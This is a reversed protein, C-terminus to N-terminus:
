PALSVTATKLTGNSFKVRIKLNNGSEDLYFVISGYGMDADTPAIKDAGLNVSNGEGTQLQFLPAVNNPKGIGVFSNHDVWLANKNITTGNAVTSVVFRTGNAGVSWNESADFEFNAGTIPYQTGDYGIGYINGLSDGFEVATPAGQAGRSRLWNITPGRFGATAHSYMDIGVAHTAHIELPNLGAGEQIRVTPAGNYENTTTAAPGVEMTGLELNGSLDGNSRNGIALSGPGLRSIGVDAYPIVQGNRLSGSLASWATRECSGGNRATGLTANITVVVGIGGSWTASATFYDYLKSISPGRISDTVTTYTDLTDCTGGQKCGNIVVSLTDPSGQILEEFSATLAGFGNPFQIAPSGSVTIKRSSFAGRTQAGAVSCFIVICVVGFLFHRLSRQM